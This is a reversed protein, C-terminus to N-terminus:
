EGVLVLKYKADGLYKKGIANVQEFTLQNLQSLYLKRKEFKYRLPNYFSLLASPTELGMVQNRFKMMSNDFDTKSFGKLAIDDMVQEVLAATATAEQSRVQTGIKFIHSVSTTIYSSGIGYTKGGKERVERFLMDSFIDNAISFAMAEDSEFSPANGVFTLYTQTSGPRNVKKMEVSKFVPQPLKVQNSQNYKGQWSTWIKEVLIKTAVPDFKGCLVLTATNPSVNFDYFEKLKERTILAYTEPTAYRGFPHEKGFVWEDTSKEALEGIDMRSPNNFTSLQDIYQLLYENDFLPKTITYYILDMGKELDKTLFEATWTTFDAGASASIGTGLRFTESKMTSNDYKENGMLSMEAAVTCYDIQDPTENKEGTNVVLQVAVADIKGYNLFVVKLGNKLAFTQYEPTPQQAWLLASIFLIGLSILYRM